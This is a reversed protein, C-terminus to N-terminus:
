IASEEKGVCDRSADTPEGRLWPWPTPVGSREFVAARLAPAVFEHCVRRAVLPPMEPNEELVKAEAAALALPGSRPFDTHNYLHHTLEIEALVTDENWHAPLRQAIWAFLLRSDDRPSPMGAAELRCAFRNLREAAEKRTPADERLLAAEISFRRPEM